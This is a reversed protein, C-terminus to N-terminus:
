IFYMTLTSLVLFGAAMCMEEMMNEEALETSLLLLDNQAKVWISHVHATEAEVPMLGLSGLAALVWEKLSFGCKGPKFRPAEPTPTTKPKPCPRRTRKSTKPAPSLFSETVISNTTWSSYTGHCVARSKRFSINSKRM